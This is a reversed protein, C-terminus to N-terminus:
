KIKLCRVCFGSNKYGESTGVKDGRSESVSYYVGLKNQLDPDDPLDSSWFLARDTNGGYGGVNSRFGVYKMELGSSGGAKMKGGAVDFGGLTTILTEWETNDPLKWGAPCAVKAAPWTYLAGNTTCNAPLNDYCYQATDLQTNLNEAMWIQDGIKIVKYEQGDREDAMTKLTAAAISASAECGNADRVKVTHDAADADMSSESQYSGNDLAYEYPATGGSVEAEISYGGSKLTLTLESCNYVVFDATSTAPNMGEVTVTIKGTTATAPVTTKIETATASTITAEVGNFSVTNDSATSSFNSGTITIVDDVEGKAPEIGTITPQQQPDPDGGDDGGCSSFVSLTMFLILALLSNKVPETLTNKM